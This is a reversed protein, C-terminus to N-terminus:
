NSLFKIRVLKVLKEIKIWYLVHYESADFYLKKLLLKFFAGTNQEVSNKLCEM